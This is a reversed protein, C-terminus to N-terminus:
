PRGAAHSSKWTAVKDDWSVGGLESLDRALFQAQSEGARKVVIRYCGPFQNNLWSLREANSSADLGRGTALMADYASPTGQWLMVNGSCEATHNKAPFQMQGSGAVPGQLFVNNTFRFTPTVSPDDKVVGGTGPSQEYANTFRHVQVLSSRLEGTWGAIPTNGAASSRRDFAFVNSVREFLCDVCSLSQEAFDTEMADDHLDQFWVRRAVVDGSSAEVSIGDGYDKIHVDEIITGASDTPALGATSHYGGPAPCSTPCHRSSCEYCADEPYPGDVNGGRFCATEDGNLFLANDSIDLWRVGTADVAHHPSLFDYETKDANARETTLASDLCSANLDAIAGCEGDQLQLGEQCQRAGGCGLWFCAAVCLSFGVSSAQLRGRRM